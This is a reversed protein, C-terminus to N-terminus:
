LQSVNCTDICSKKQKKLSVWERNFSFLLTGLKKEPYGNWGDQLFIELKPMSALKRNWILMNLGSSIKDLYITLLGKGFM